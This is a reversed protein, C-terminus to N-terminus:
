LSEKRVRPVRSVRSVRSVKLLAKKVAEQDSWPYETKGFCMSKEHGKGCIVVIDGKKALKQAALDIAKTRDPVITYEGKAKQCGEAIQECIKGVDETRPDEATIVTHDAIRGSIEGMMPRKQKDRLGACGFVAILRADKNLKKRLTNLAQELANPTHAFDVIVKFDQGANIEEMRGTVGEFSSVAKRIKEGSIGLTSVAAIAALCNYRNYEGPLKTIFSFNKVTFDAETKISYTVVKTKPFKQLKASLFGYSFDDKNVIAVKSKELLKAKAQLYNRYTRHYDLHEHTVNTIVGVEYSIGWVRFQDLGHSTVELVVYEIKEKVMKRLLKRLQWPDPATVHLGTDFEKDNIKASVTSIMATPLGCQHLIHYILNVTTTKGDTGTVGIFKLKNEPFGYFLGSLVASPLHKFNNILVQKFSRCFHSM